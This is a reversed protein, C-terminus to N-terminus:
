QYKDPDVKTISHNVYIVNILVRLLTDAALFAAHRVLTNEVRVGM